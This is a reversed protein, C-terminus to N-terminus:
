ALRFAGVTQVLRAAQQKLSDAAAASQEVLAANQQTVQDLQGVATGVEQIGTTQERTAAGIEAILDSVRKAHGVIDQMTAGADNVLQSGAEVSSVSAGILSKIEKAAEASRQALSRVESAVVAFGRGQEGARAAEVAANLALINTQFAIGDIVGIIDGIKRSSAAIEGMTAVVQGMVEGGKSAVGSAETALQAALQATGANQQVTDSLQQMSSATQQLSAAQEDTRQSLDVNGAAIQSAGTAIAESSSKIEGVIGSLSQMSAALAKVMQGMEDNVSVNVVHNLEGRSLARAAGLALRVSSSTQRAILVMLMVGLAIGAVGGAVIALLSGWARRHDAAASQQIQEFGARGLAFQADIHRTMAAYYDAAAHSVVEPRILQYEVLSLAQAAQALAEDISPKLLAHQEPAYTSLRGFATQVALMRNRAGDALAAIRMRDEPEMSKKSLAANGRARLQGLLESLQPLESLVGQVLYYREPRTELSLGAAHVVSQLLALEDRVLLTHRQFSAPAPLAGANVDGQLRPWDARIKEILAQHEKSGYAAAERAAVDLAAAVEAAKDKRAGQKSTDGNLVGATIGRHQQTLQVLRLVAEAPALGQQQADLRRLQGLKDTVVMVAPPMALAMAIVGLLAFKQWIKLSAVFRLM